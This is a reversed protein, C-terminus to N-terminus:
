TCCEELFKADSTVTEESVHRCIAIDILIVLQRQVVFGTARLKNSALGTRHASTAHLRCGAGFKIRFCMLRVRVQVVVEIGRWVEM